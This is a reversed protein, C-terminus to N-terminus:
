SGLHLRLFRMGQPGGEIPGYTTGGEIYILMGATIPEGAITGGGDIIHLLESEDHSHAKEFHGPEYEVFQGRPVASSGLEFPKFRVGPEGAAAKGAWNNPVETWGMSEFDVYHVAM